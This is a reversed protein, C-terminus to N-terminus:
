FLSLQVPPEQIQDWGLSPIKVGHHELLHQFIRANHPSREESPCHVFFYITKGEGLWIELQHVWEELYPQNFKAQPHSIFRIFSINSTADLHVPLKPKRRESEVQPDDPCNYIPRTDLIVRGIGFQRLLANLQAEHSSEFWDLHRVELAVTVGHSSLTELFNTLDDLYAPSYRAPLQAFMVGLRDGLKKMKEYFDLTQPLQPTLLGNHTINRPLKPCFKFGTATKEVWRAVKDPSPVAYFTTNGEVTNFRQSYLNLFDKPRSRAPYFEGVWGKYSWVACGLHFNM